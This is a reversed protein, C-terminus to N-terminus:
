RVVVEGGCPVVIAQPRGMSGVRVNHVGCRVVASTGHVISGDVYLRHEPSGIVTGVPARPLADVAFEPVGGNATAGAGTPRSDAGPTAKAGGASRRAPSQPPYQPAAVAVGRGDGNTTTVAAALVGVALALFTALVWGVRRQPSWPVDLAIQFTADGQGLVPGEPAVPVVCVASPESPALNLSPLPARGPASPFIPVGVELAGPPAWPVPMAENTMRWNTPGAASPADWVPLAADSVELIDAGEIEDTSDPHAHGSPVQRGRMQVLNLPVEELIDEALIELTSAADSPPRVGAVAVPRRKLTKEPDPADLDLPPFDFQPLKDSAPPLNRESEPGLESLDVRLAHRAAMRDPDSGANMM